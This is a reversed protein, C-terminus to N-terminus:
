MGRCVPLTILGIHSSQNEYYLKFVGTERDLVVSPNIPGNVVRLNGEALGEFYSRPIIPAPAADSPVMHFTKGDDAPSTALCLNAVLPPLVASARAACAFFMLFTGDPAQVVGPGGPFFSDFRANDTSPSVVPNGPFKEWMKGDTSTAVGHRVTWSADNATYWMFYTAGVRKVVPSEVWLGDWAGKPGLPVSLEPVPYAWHTGTLTVEGIQGGPTPFSPNAAVNAMSNGFLFVRHSGDEYIATPTDLFGSAYDGYPSLLADTRTWSRGRDASTAHGIRGVKADDSMAYFMDWVAGRDIVEPSGIYREVVSNPKTALVSMGVSTPTWTFPTKWDVFGCDIAPVAPATAADQSPAADRLAGDAPGGVVGGADTPPQAGAAADPLAGGDGADLSSATPARGGDAQAPAAGDTPAAMGGGDRGCAAALLLIASTCIVRRFAPLSSM